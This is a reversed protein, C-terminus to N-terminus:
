QRSSGLPLRIIQWLENLRGAAPVSVLDRGGGDPAPKAFGAYSSLIEDLVTWDQRTQYTAPPFQRSYEERGYVAHFLKPAGGQCTHEAVTRLIAVAVSASVCSQQESTSYCDPKV